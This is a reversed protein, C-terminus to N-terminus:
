GFIFGILYDRFYYLIFAILFAPVFPIGQKIRVKSKGAKKLLKINELSIGEWDARITKRGVKVDEALWYDKIGSNLCSHILRSQLEEPEFNRKTGDHAMIMVASSALCVM